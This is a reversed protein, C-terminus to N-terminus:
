TRQGASLKVITKRLHKKVATLKATSCLQKVKSLTQQQVQTLELTRLILHNHPPAGLRKTTQRVGLTVDLIIRIVHFQATQLCEGKKFVGRDWFLHRVHEYTGTVWGFTVCSGILRFHIGVRGFGLEELGQRHGHKVRSKLTEHSVTTLKRTTFLQKVKSLIKQLVDALIVTRLILTDHPPTGLTQATQRVGLTVYLIIRIV